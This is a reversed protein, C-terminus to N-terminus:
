RVLRVYGNGDRNGNNVYGDNFDVYWAYDSYGVYPSSSWYFNAQTNPFWDTDIRPSGSSALIGELEEKTPLRWDNY